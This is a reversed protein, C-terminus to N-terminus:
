REDERLRERLYDLNLAYPAESRAELRWQAMELGYQHGIHAAEM